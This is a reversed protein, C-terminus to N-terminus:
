GGDTGADPAIFSSCQGGKCAVRVASHDFRCDATQGDEARCDSSGACALGYCDLAPYCSAYDAASARAVGIWQPVGCCSPMMALECDAASSCPKFADVSAPCNAGDAERPTTVQDAGVDASGDSPTADTGGDTVSSSGPTSAGGCAITFLTALALASRLLPM